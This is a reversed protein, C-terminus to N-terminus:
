KWAYTITIFSLSRKDLKQYLADKFRLEDEFVKQPDGSVTLHLEFVKKDQIEPDYEVTVKVSDLTSFTQKIIAISSYIQSKIDEAEIEKLVEIDIDM